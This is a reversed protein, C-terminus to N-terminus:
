PTCSLSRDEVCEVRDSWPDPRLSMVHIDQGEFVPIYIEAFGAAGRRDYRWAIGGITSITAGFPEDLPTQSATPGYFDNIDFIVSSTYDWSGSGHATPRLVWVRSAEDGGVVIWPKTRGEMFRVPWFVQARGPALRGPPSVPPVSPNPRIDDLLIRTTWPDGFIDGSEPAELAYVRGPVASSTAPTCNDPQHNSALVDARGDLNM